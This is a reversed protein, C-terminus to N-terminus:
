RGASLLYVPIPPVVFGPRGNRLSQVQLFYVGSALGTSWNAPLDVRNWGKQYAGSFQQQTALVLAQTFARLRIGEAPGALLVYLRSPGPNPAAM